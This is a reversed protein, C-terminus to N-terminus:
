TATTQWWIHGSDKVFPEPYDCVKLDRTYRDPAKALSCQIPMAPHLWYLCLHTALWKDCTLLVKSVRAPLSLWPTVQLSLHRGYRAIGPKERKLYSPM